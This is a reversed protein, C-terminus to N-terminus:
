PRLYGPPVEARDEEQQPTTTTLESHSVDDRFDDKKTKQIREAEERKGKPVKSPNDTYQVMGDEDVWKYIEYGSTINSLLFIPISIISLSIVLLKTNM